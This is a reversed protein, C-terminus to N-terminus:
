AQARVFKLRGMIQRLRDVHRFLLALFIASGRRFRAVGQLEQRVLFRKGWIAVTAGVSAWSGSGKTRGLARNIAIRGGAAAENL